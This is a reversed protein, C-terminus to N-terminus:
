PTAGSDHEATVEEGDAAIYDWKIKQFNFSVSATPSEPTAGPPTAAGGTQYSSVLVNTLTVVYYDTAGAGGADPRAIAFQLTQLREGTACALMLKPSAKDVKMTFSFDQVSVKGTGGGGGLVTASNSMGWSFSSIEIWDKHKESTSEGKIGDLKLFFDSAGFTNTATLITVPAVLALTKSFTPNLKM